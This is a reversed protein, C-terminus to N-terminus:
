NIINVEDGADIFMNIDYPILFKDWTDDVQYDIRLQNTAYQLTSIVFADAFSNLTNGGYSSAYNMFEEGTIPMNISTAYVVFNSWAVVLKDEATVGDDDSKYLMYLYKTTDTTPAYVQSFLKYLDPNTQVETEFPEQECSVILIALLFIKISNLM